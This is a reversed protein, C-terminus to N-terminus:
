PSPINCRMNDEPSALYFVHLNREMEVGLLSKTVEPLAIHDKRPHEKLLIIKHILNENIDFTL